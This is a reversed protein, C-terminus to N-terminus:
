LEPLTNWPLLDGELRSQAEEGTYIVINRGKTHLANKRFVTIGKFLRSAPTFTYKVEILHIEGGERIVFDVENGNSDRWFYLSDPRSLNYRNKLLEVAIMNELLSGKAHYTEIQNPDHIDLLHCLLGTDYFYLKPSKVIRKSFNEFYPQLRFAIFGAELINLWKKLTQQSIGAETGLSQYNLPQGVRGACLRLFNRFAGLDGINAV